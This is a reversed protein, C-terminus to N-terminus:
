TCFFGLLSVFHHRAEVLCVQPLSNVANIVPHSSPLVDSFYGFVTRPGFFATTLGLELVALLSSSLPVAVSSADSIPHSESHTCM